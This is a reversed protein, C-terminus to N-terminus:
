DYRWLPYGTGGYACSPFAPGILYTRAAGDWCTVQVTARPTFDGAAYVCVGHFPLTEGPDWCRVPFVNLDPARVGGGSPPVSVNWHTMQAINTRHFYGVCSTVAAASATAVMVGEATDLGALDKTREIVFSMAEYIYFVRLAVMLRNPAGSLYSYQSGDSSGGPDSIQTRPVVVGTINGVGDSGTGVTIWLSGTYWNVSGAGIELKLFVPATAQLVDNMRWIEYGWSANATQTGTVFTHWDLQGTDATQVWGFSAIGTHLTQVATAFEATTGM